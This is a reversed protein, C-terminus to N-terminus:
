LGKELTARIEGDSFAGDLGKAYACQLAFVCSAFSMKKNQSEAINSIRFTKLGDRVADKGVQDGCVMRLAMNIRHCGVNDVFNMAEFSEAFSAWDVEYTIPSGTIELLEATRQVFSTEQLEKLKRKENLGM